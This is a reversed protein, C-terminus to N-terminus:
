LEHTSAEGTARNRRTYVTIMEDLSDIASSGIELYGNKRDIELQGTVLTTVSTWVPNWPSSLMRAIYEPDVLYHLRTM